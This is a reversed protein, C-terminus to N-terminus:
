SKFENDFKKKIEWNFSKNKNVLNGTITICTNDLIKKGALYISKELEITENKITFILSKNKSIQILASNGSLTRVATLNPNLHFRFIYRIPKGDSKKLIIDTGTLKNKSDDLYIERKHTCSFNKEYGNHSISCGILHKDKKIELGNTKFTNKISNGFVINILKNREFKTISTDNITLTSQSATLRSILKAKSSINNGFGSNTIIKVGDLFYEFSLPGSQYNKSFSKSPPSGVDFYLIQQKSKAYFIGGIIDKTKKKNIKFNELYKELYILNNESTGNFFPLQNDPNKFFKICALNKKIIDDLFEPMYLQADKINEHCILLYRTFFILDNSSRTIPFGDKDFYSKIFKELELISIRYNDKYEKFVIGSLLLATLIELKKQPDKEFRINKKLHNCQSIISQFLNNKFEFTGNNIIIDINLIWSIIRTSLTSTEWVNKKFKSYKLMWLYIIKQINKTDIKRDILSLWLFKHYEKINKDNSEIWFDNPNIENIKFSRKNYPSIISLVYPNPNFYVQTPIKSILSNNYISTTFYIKKFYKILTIQIAILYFYAGKLGFM